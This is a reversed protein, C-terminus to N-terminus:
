RNVLTSPIKCPLAHWLVIGSMLKIDVSITGGNPMVIRYAKAKGEGLDFTETVSFATGKRLV